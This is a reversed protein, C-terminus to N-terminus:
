RLLLRQASWRLRRGSRGRVDRDAQAATLLTCRTRVHAGGVRRDAIGLLLRARRGAGGATSRERRADCRVEDADVQSAMCAAVNTARKAVTSSEAQGMACAFGVTSGRRTPVSGISTKLYRIAVVVTAHGVARARGEKGGRREERQSNGLMTTTTLGTKPHPPLLSALDRSKRGVDVHSRPRAPNPRRPMQRTASDSRQSTRAAFTVLLCALTSVDSTRVIMAIDDVAAEDIFPQLEAVTLLADLHEVAPSHKTQACRRALDVQADLEADVMALMNATFRHYDLAVLELGVRHTDVLARCAACAADMRAHLETAKEIAQAMDYHAQEIDRLVIIHEHGMYNAGGKPLGPIRSDSTGLLFIDTIIEPSPREPFRLRMGREVERIMVRLSAMRAGHTERWEGWAEM